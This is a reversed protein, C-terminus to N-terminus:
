YAIVVIPAQSFTLLDDSPTAAANSVPYSDPACSAETQTLATGHQYNLRGTLAVELDVGLVNRGDNVMDGRAFARNLFEAKEVFLAALAECTATFVSAGYGRCCVCAAMASHKSGVKLFRANLEGRLQSRTDTGFNLRRGHLSILGDTFQVREELRLDEAKM